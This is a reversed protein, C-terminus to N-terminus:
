LGAAAEADVEAQRRRAVANLGATARSRDIEEDVVKQARQLVSHLEADSIPIRRARDILDAPPQLVVVDERYGSSAAHPSPGMSSAGGGGDGCASSAGDHEATIVAPDPSRDGALSPPAHTAAGTSNISSDHHDLHVSPDTVGGAAAPPSAGGLVAGGPVSPRPQETISRMFDMALTFASSAFSALDTIPEPASPTTAATSVDSTSPQSAGASAAAPTGSPTSSPSAARTMSAPFEVELRANQYAKLAMVTGHFDMTTLHLSADLHQLLAIIIRFASPWGNRLFEDWVEVCLDHPLILTFLTFYWEFFLVPDVDISQLHAAVEPLTKWLLHKLAMSNLKVEPLDPTFLRRMHYRPDHLLRVLLAFAEAEDDLEALIFGCLFNM